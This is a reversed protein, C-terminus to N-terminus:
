YDERERDRKADPDYSDYPDSSYELCWCGSEQCPGDELDAYVAHMDPSHGCATCDPKEPPGQLKWADYGPLTM